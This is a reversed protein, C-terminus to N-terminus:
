SCMSRLSQYVSTYAEVLMMGNLPVEGLMPNTAWQPLSWNIAPLVFLLCRLVQLKIHRIKNLLAKEGKQLDAVADKDDNRKKGTLIQGLDGLKMKLEKWKLCSVWLDGIIYATWFGCSIASVRNANVRVLKPMTWGAYAVHELPYYCLMSGCMVYKAIKAILPNDWTGGAWSGSRYGELSQLFGFFRLVYRAMSVESYLKQLSPSLNKYKKRTAYSIAWSSWQLIKLGQDATFTSGSFSGYTALFTDLKSPVIANSPSPLATTRNTEENSDNADVVGNADDSSSSKLLDPPSDDGKGNITSKRQRLNSM